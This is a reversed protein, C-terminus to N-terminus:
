VASRTPMWPRRRTHPPGRQCEARVGTQL